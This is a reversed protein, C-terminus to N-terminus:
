KMVAQACRLAKRVNKQSLRLHRCIAEEDVYGDQSTLLDVVLVGLGPFTHQLLEVSVRALYEGFQLCLLGLSPVHEKSLHRSLM